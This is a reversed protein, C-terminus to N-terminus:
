ETRHISRAGAQHVEITAHAGGEHVSWSSHASEYLRITAFRKKSVTGLVMNLITRISRTSFRCSYARYSLRGRVRILRWTCCPSTRGPQSSSSHVTSCSRKWPVRFNSVKQGDVGPVVAEASVVGGISEPAAGSVKCVLVAYLVACEARVRMRNVLSRRPAATLIMTKDTRSWLCTHRGGASVLVSALLWRMSGWASM